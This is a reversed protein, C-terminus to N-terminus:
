SDKQVTVIKKRKKQPKQKQRYGRRKKRLDREKQAAVKEAKEEDLVAKLAIQKAASESLAVTTENNELQQRNRELVEQTRIAIKRKQAKHEQFKALRPDVRERM